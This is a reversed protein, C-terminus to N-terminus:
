NKHLGWNQNPEPGMELELKGGSLLESAPFICSKLEKGNLRASQVYINLRSANKAEIVFSSGRGYRQGLDIEIKEFLPSGIEYVPEAACGGDTQFLGMAAMMYWASMQGQDEDGLYANAIGFGYYRDLVARSWKQSLWPTNVWNFLFAFHMSQQNGQIVPYNWYQDNMGNFRTKDSEEFGWNLREIFQDKGIAEALAPVDQPVFFTLQWANGEVYHKNAGSKYPDFDPLWEGRANKMRAFGTEPDIVNRWYYGREYFTKFDDIKGLSKAFQSVTWDSGEELLCPKSILHDRVYQGKRDFCLNEMGRRINLPCPEQKYANLVFWDVFYFRKYMLNIADPKSAGLNHISKARTGFIPDDGGLFPKILQDIELETKLATSIDFWAAKKNLLKLEAEIQEKIHDYFVGIYGDIIITQQGTLEKVLSKIGAHIRGAELALSPYIDYKRIDPNTKRSPIMYQDSKRLEM